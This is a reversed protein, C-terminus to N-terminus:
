KKDKKGKLAMKPRVILGDSLEAKDMPAFPSMYPVGFSERRCLFILLFGLSLAVGEFGLIKALLLNVLRILMLSNMYPPISFSAVATLAVVMIAQASALGASIAADGLILGAVIGVADGVARPMRVGVERILEFILLITLLEGFVGFPLDRRAEVVSRYLKYPVAGAHHELLTLYIAPLYLAIFLSFLRVFRIFTAYYPTKLYDEASQLSEVFLYPVTLVVPSGDCIIAIRGEVLKAAVKDPKESNGVNTFLSPVRKQLYHEIYGSDMVSPISIKSLENKVRSLTEKSAVGDLYAVYVSTKTYEGVPINVTKFATTKLRKRLLAINDEANEIFGERPGRVVTETDPESVSRGGVRKAMICFISAREDFECLVLAFGSLLKTEAEDVNGVKILENSSIIGFFNKESKPMAELRVLPRVITESIFARDSYNGLNSIYICAGDPLFVPRINFDACGAFRGKLVNVAEELSIADPM